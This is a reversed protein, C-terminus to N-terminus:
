VLAHENDYQDYVIEVIKRCALELADTDANAELTDAPDSPNSYKSLKDDVWACTSIDLGLKCMYMDQLEVLAEDIFVQERNGRGGIFLVEPKSDGLIELSTPAESEGSVAAATPVANGPVGLASLLTAAGAVGALRLFGRRSIQSPNQTPEVPTPPLISTIETEPTLNSPNEM